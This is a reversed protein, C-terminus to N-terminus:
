SLFCLAMFAIDAKLTQLFTTIFFFANQINKFVASVLLLRLVVKFCGNLTIETLGRAKTMMVTTFYM